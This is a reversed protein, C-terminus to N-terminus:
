RKLYEILGRYGADMLGMHNWRFLPRAIPAIHRMWPRPGSVHWEFRVLTIEAQQFLQWCGIGELGGSVTAELRAPPEIRALRVDISLRYPLAGRWLFRWVSGTDRSESVASVAQLGPWWRTWQSPDRIIQWVAERPAAIKWETTFEYDALFTARTRVADVM